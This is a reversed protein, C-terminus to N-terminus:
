DVELKWRRQPAKEERTEREMARALADIAKAPMMGASAYVDLIRRPLRVPIVTMPETDPKPRRM